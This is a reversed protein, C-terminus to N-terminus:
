RAWWFNRKKAENMVKKDISSLVNYLAKGYDTTQYVLEDDGYLLQDSLLSHLEELEIDTLGAGIAGTPKDSM